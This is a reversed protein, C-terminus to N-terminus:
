IEKENLWRFSVIGFRRGFRKNAASTMKASFPAVAAPDVPDVYDPQRRVVVECWARATIKNAKDRSDGYGRITFTDDRASLVPALPKLIDAQRVWGPVGFSTWGLAAEPFKYDTTGPPEKTIRFSNEQLKVFPNKPSNGTEALNDLAKQITGAIALNKDTTLQRNVFEALSLFPGRLRIEKVIEEALADIQADTLVRHGAFEAADPFLGNSEGSGSNTARDGAISTRPYPYSAATDTQTRGNASLYPVEADRSQRLLAKWAALSVSNINFMGDVELTSAISEFAYMDTKGDKTTSVANTVAQSVTPSDAGLAPLYFRNPLPTTLELHDKYVNQLTRKTTSKFDNTDPAISSVFWDDFLLHNLIYSDDNCMGNMFPTSVSVQDPAFVPHASGNGILNFQFPTFPNNNRADFHQLEALSQLPRTPLEAMVSRTLGDGATLGSVIYSSKTSGEAQPIRSDNWLNVEEFALDYPANIPHYIGTGKMSNTVNDRERYGIEAYHCLPNTQLMGKSRLAQHKPDRPLPSAMRYGFLASAFPQNRIGEVNGITSSLTRTLPPYLEDVATQGGLASLSYTMRHASQVGGNVSIEYYMGIGVNAHEAAQEHYEVKEVAFTDAASAWVDNGKNIGYFLFGGNPKFGPTLVVNNAQADEKLQTDNLAFIRTGGPPLTISGFVNLTFRRNGGTGAKTIESLTTEPYSTAGVKFKFRLPATEQISVGFNVVNLEVNYPNWLTLVPTIMLAARYPKAADPPPTKKKSSCLSYIWQIRAIQPCRRTQDQFAFRDGYLSSIKSPMMTRSADSSSSLNRYQLMFDTLASWSSIPPAQAWGAGSANNRYNAWPYILPRTTSTAKSFTQVKGPELTFLPLNTSPLSGSLGPSSNFRESFLSLDRRWGGTATNTLLGRSYGTLDHIKKLEAAPNVLNLSGTSPIVKGLPYTDIKELGFSKADPKGNGRLRQQWTVTTAPKEVRDTNIMAKSNDGSTWWAIAGKSNNVLTPKMFVKRPDTTLVSGDSVMAVYGTEFKDSVNPISSIDPKETTATSTLWGLFRGTGAVSPPAFPEGAEKKSAYDPAKPKGNSEHDKGEWSRWAGTVPVNQSAVLDAAATIRTDHGTLSQLQGIALQVSLRANQRAEAQALSSSAQRLSISSLSLLGVAIVTLLIMLSLTVVLAFGSKM